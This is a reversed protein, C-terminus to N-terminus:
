IKHVFLSCHFVSAERGSLNILRFLHNAPVCFSEGQNLNINAGALILQLNGSVVVGGYDVFLSRFATFEGPLLCDTRMDLQKRDTNISEGQRVLSEPSPNPLTFTFFEAITIPFAALIRSLSQISPSVQGQEIMSISSNTVGARKALERQSFGAADRLLKLRTATEILLDSGLSSDSIATPTEASVLAIDPSSDLGTADNSM